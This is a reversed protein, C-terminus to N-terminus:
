GALLPNALSFQGHLHMFTYVPRGDLVHEQRMGLIISLPKADM